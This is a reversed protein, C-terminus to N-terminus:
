RPWVGSWQVIAWRGMELGFYSIGAGLRRLLLVTRTASTGEVDHARRACYGYTGGLRLVRWSGNYIDELGDADSTRANKVDRRRRGLLM